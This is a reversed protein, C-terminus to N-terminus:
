LLALRDGSRIGAQELTSGPPLTKRLLYSRLILGRSESFLGPNNEYVCIDACLLGIAAEVTIKAPIWFDYSKSAPPCFVNILLRNM